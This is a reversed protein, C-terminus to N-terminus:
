TLGLRLLVAKERDSLVPEADVLNHWRRIANMVTSHHRGGFERGILPYSAATFERVLAIALARPQAFKAERSDGTLGALQGQPSAAADGPAVPSAAADVRRHEPRM